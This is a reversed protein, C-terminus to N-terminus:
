GSYYNKNKVPRASHISLNIPANRMFILQKKQGGRYHICYNAAM